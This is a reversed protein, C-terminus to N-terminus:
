EYRNESQLRKAKLAANEYRLCRYNCVITTKKDVIPKVHTDFARNIQEPIM